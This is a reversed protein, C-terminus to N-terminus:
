WGILPVNLGMAGCNPIVYPLSTLLRQGSLKSISSTPTWGLHKLLTHYHNSTRLWSLLLAMSCHDMSAEGAASSEDFGRSTLLTTSCLTSGPVVDNSKEITVALARFQHYKHGGGQGGAARTSSLPCGMSQRDVWANTCCTTSKPSFYRGFRFALVLQKRSFLQCDNLKINKATKDM